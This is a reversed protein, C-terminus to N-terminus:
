KRFEDRSYILDKSANKLAARVTGTVMKKYNEMFEDANFSPESAEALFEEVGGAVDHTFNPGRKEASFILAALKVSYKHASLSSTWRGEQQLAAAAEYIYSPLTLELADADLTSLSDTLIATITTRAAEFPSPVAEEAQQPTDLLAEDESTDINIKSLNIPKGSAKSTLYAEVIREEKETIIETLTEKEHRTKAADWARYHEELLRPGSERLMANVDKIRIMWRYKKVFEMIPKSLLGISTAGFIATIEAVAANQFMQSSFILAFFGFGAGTFLRYNYGDAPNQYSLSNHLDDREEKDVPINRWATPSMDPSFNRKIRTWLGLRPMEIEPLGGRRFSEAIKKLDKENESNNSQTKKM